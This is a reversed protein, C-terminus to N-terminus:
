ADLRQRLPLLLNQPQDSLVQLRLFDGTQEVDAFARHLRM